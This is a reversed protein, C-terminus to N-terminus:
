KKAKTANIKAWRAKQAARINALGEASMTSKKKAAPAAPAKPAPASSSSGRAAFKADVNKVVKRGAGYLFVQLSNLPDKSAFRYGLKQVGALLEQKTIPKATLVKLVAERLPMANNIVKQPGPPRGRKKGTPAAAPAAAVVAEGGGLADNIEQLRKQIAEREASLASRLARYQQLPDNQKM